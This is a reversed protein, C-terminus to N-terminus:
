NRLDGEPPNVARTGADDPATTRTGPPMDAPQERTVAVDAARISRVADLEALNEVADLPLRARIARYQPVSNIVSGGLARIRSLVEPVVEARIDVTVIKDEVIEGPEQRRADAARRADLLQSSVKRQAATRQEKEALLAEIQGSSTGPSEGGAQASPQQAPAQGQVTTALLWALLVSAIVAIWRTGKPARRLNSCAMCAEHVAGLAANM